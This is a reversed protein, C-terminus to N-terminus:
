RGAARLLVPEPQRQFAGGARRQWRTVDRPLAVAPACDHCEAGAFPSADAVLAMVSPAAGRVLTPVVAIFDRDTFPGATLSWAVRFPQKFPVIRSQPLMAGEVSMMLPSHGVPEFHLTASQGPYRTAYYTLRFPGPVSPTAPGTTSIPEGPALPHHPFSITATMTGCRPRGEVAVLDGSDTLPARLPTLKLVLESRHTPVVTCPPLVVPHSIPVSLFRQPRCM